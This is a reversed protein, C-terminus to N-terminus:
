GVGSHSTTMFGFGVAQIALVGGAAGHSGYATWRWHRPGRRAVDHREAIGFTL